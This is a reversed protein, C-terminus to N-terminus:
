RIPVRVERQFRAVVDINGLLHERREYETGIVLYGREKVVRFDDRARVSRVDNIDLRRQILSKIEPRTKATIGPEQEISELVTVVKGYELYVPVLRLAVLVFFALLAFTFLWGIATMGAQRKLSREM